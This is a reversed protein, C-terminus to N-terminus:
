GAPHRDDTVPTVAGRPRRAAPPRGAPRPDRRRVPDPRRSQRVDLGARFGSSSRRRRWSLYQRLIAKRVYAEPADLRGIRDWRRHVRSLVEQVLDQALHLDGTLLFAFRSLTHGRATVFEDFELDAM